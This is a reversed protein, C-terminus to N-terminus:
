EQLLEDLLVIEYGKQKIYNIMLNLNSTTTNNNSLSIIIGPALTEKLEKYPYNESLTYPKITYMKEKKCIDIANNNETGYCYKVSKKTIREIMAKEYKLTAKNYNNNENGLSAIYHEKSSINNLYEDNNVIEDSIFFTVKVNNKDLINLINTINNDTKLEFVLSIERKEKNGSIIYKDYNDKLSIDPLDNIFVLLNKNYEGLRKMKEYSKNVDVETGSKGAIICDNEIVANVAAVKYEDKTNMIEKMIPDKSKSIYIIKDTYYFSFCTLICIGLIKFANKM